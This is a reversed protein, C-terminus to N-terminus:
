ARSRAFWDTIMDLAGGILAYLLMKGIDGLELRVCSYRLYYFTPVLNQIASLNRFYFFIPCVVLMGLILIPIAAGLRGATGFLKRVLNCFFVSDLLYLSLLLLERGVGTFDRILYLAAFIAAAVPIMAAMQYVYVSRQRRRLSFADLIGHEKDQLYYMEAALGCLIIMLALMGRLPATLYNQKETIGAADGEVLELNFIKEENGSSKFYNKLEEDTAEIGLESKVFNKCLAYSLDPYMIGFLKVRALQMAVNEEREIVTIVGGGKRGTSIIKEARNIFDDRFIWLADAEGRAVMRKGTDVDEVSQYNIVSDEKLMKATLERVTEDEPDEAYLLIKLMGTDEASVNKLGLVLLPVTCLLIIFSFKKFFRKSLLAYYLFFHRIQRM